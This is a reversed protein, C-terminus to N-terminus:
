AGRELARRLSALKDPNRVVFANAIRAGGDDGTAVVDFVVVGVVREGDLQVIAPAGNVWAPRTGTGGQYRGEVMRRYMGAFYRSARDAGVITRRHSRAKGGHDPVVAVDDTFMRALGAVDGAALAALFAATMGLQAAPPAPFRTRRAAVHARARHLLQRCAAESRGTAEAVEAMEYDLVERLVYVARELPSLAELLVLFAMSMSEADSVREAPGPAASAAAGAADIVRPPAAAAPADTFLPEPLWPGVYTERRRRASRVEDLCLRTVITALVARPSRADDVGRARLYADQLVDEADAASGLIRYAIAFLYPRERELEEATM